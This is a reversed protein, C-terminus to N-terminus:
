CMYVDHGTPKGLAGEVGLPKAPTWDVRLDKLSAGVIEIAQERMEGLGQDYAMKLHPITSLDQSIIRAATTDAAVLDTSALVLWSGLRERMDVTIGQNGGAQPGSGEVCISADIIALDPKLAAVIDLFVQEIGEPITHLKMRAAGGDTRAGYRVLPTVGVFNKLSATLRTWQHTKLVPISIVRDARAALSSVAITGLSSRSPVDVWEPSDADLCALTVKGQYESSLRKAEAVLNTAGDLTTAYEWSFTSMQAADGIIVETAGAKLCEETVATIIEVKTCEGLPFPNRNFRAWGITVLNPKIFVTEGPQVIAAVGGVAALADRTMTPLDDGRVAAVKATPETSTQDDKCGTLIAPAGAAIAAGAGLRLFGRRTLRPM